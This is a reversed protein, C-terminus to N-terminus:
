EVLGIFQEFFQVGVLVLHDICSLKGSIEILKLELLGSSKDSLDLLAVLFM